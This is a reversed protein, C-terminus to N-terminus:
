AEQGSPRSTRSWSRRECSPVGTASDWCRGHLEGGVPGSGRRLRARFRPGEARGNEQICRYVPLDRPERVAQRAADRVPGASEPAQEYVMVAILSPSIPKTSGMQVFITSLVDKEDELLLTVEISTSELHDRILKEDGDTAMRVQPWLRSAM